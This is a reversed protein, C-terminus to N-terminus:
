NGQAPKPTREYPPPATTTEVPSRPGGNAADRPQEGPVHASNGHSPDAPRVAHQRAIHAGAAEDDNVSEAEIAKAIEEAVKAREDARAAAEIRPVATHIAISVVRLANIAVLDGFEPTTWPKLRDLAENIAAEITDTLEAM